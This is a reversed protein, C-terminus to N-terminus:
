QRRRRRAAVSKAAARGRPHHSAAAPQLPPRPSTIDPRDQALELSTNSGHAGGHAHTRSRLPYRLVTASVATRTTLMALAGAKVRPYHYACCRNDSRQKRRQPTHCPGTRPPLPFTSPFLAAVGRRAGVSSCSAVTIFGYRTQYLKRKFVITTHEIVFTTIINFIIDKLQVFNAPVVRTHRATYSPLPELKRSNARVNAGAVTTAM